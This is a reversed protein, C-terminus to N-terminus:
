FENFIEHGPRLKGDRTTFALNGPGGVWGDELDHLDAVRSYQLAHALFGLNHQRLVSLTFRMNEVRLADDLDGWCTETVLLPKHVEEGFACVDTVYSELRQRRVPDFVQEGRGILYPHVLLVDSIPEVRKLSALGEEMSVSIGAQAKKDVAKIAEYLETLWELEAQVYPMLDSTVPRYSFPENCIDWLIIRSDERHAEVIDKVYKLYHPRFYAASKPVAFNDLYVGGNDYIDHWRNLLCPVVKIKLRDAIDLMKEFNAKFEEPKRFYADWSLWYRVTNFGPFYEKGRSMEKEIIHPQFYVWNELSATGYSPQYNFGRVESYDM